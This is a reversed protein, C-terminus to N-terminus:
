GFYRGQDLDKLLGSRVPADEAAVAKVLVNLHRGIVEAIVRITM